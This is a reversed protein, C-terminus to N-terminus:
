LEQKSTYKGSVFNLTDGFVHINDIDGNKYNISFIQGQVELKGGEETFYTANAADLVKVNKLSSKDQATHNSDEKAFYFKITKGEIENKNDLVKPNGLALGSDEKIFFLLTDCKLITKGTKASVSDIALFQDQRNKLIMKSSHVITTESREIYLTPSSDVTGLADTFNYEGIKSMITLNQLKEKIIVGDRAKVLNKSQEFTLTPTEIRLTESEVKVNGKLTTKKEGFAYYATDATITFQSTNILLSDYIKARNEKEYFVANKGTIKTDKDTITIGQPFVTVRGQPSDLIEMKPASIDAAFMVSFFSFIILWSYVRIFVLLNGKEKGKLLPPNLLIKLKKKVTNM